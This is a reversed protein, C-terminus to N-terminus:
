KQGRKAPAVPKARKAAKVPVEVMQYRKGEEECDPQMCYIERREDDKELLVGCISCAVDEVIVTKM